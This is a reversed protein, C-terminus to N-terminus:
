HVIIDIKNNKLDEQIIIVKAVLLNIEQIDLVTNMEEIKHNNEVQNDVVEEQLQKLRQM